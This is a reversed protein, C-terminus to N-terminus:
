NAQASVSITVDCLDVAPTWSEELLYRTGDPAEAFRCVMVGDASEDRTAFRRWEPRVTGPQYTYVTITPYGIPSGTM